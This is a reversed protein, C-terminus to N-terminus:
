VRRSSEKFNQLNLSVNKTRADDAPIEELLGWELYEKIFLSVNRNDINRYM